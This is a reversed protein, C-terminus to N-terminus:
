KLLLRALDVVFWVVSIIVLLGGLLRGWERLRRKAGDPLYIALLGAIVVLAAIAFGELHEPGFESYSTSAPDM